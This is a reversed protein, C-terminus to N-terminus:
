QNEKTIDYVVTEQGDKFKTVKQIEGDLVEMVEVPTMEDLEEPTREEGEPIDFKKILISETIKVTSEEEPM